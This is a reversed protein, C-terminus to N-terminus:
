VAGSNAQPPSVATTEGDAKPMPRCLRIGFCTQVSIAQLANGLAFRASLIVCHAGRRHGQIACQTDSAPRSGQGRCCLPLPAHPCFQRSAPSRPNQWLPHSGNATIVIRLIVKDASRVRGVSSSFIFRISLEKLGPPFTQFGALNEFFFVVVRLDNYFGSNNLCRWVGM